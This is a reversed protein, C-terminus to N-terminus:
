EIRRRLAAPTPATSACRSRNLDRREIMALDVAEPWGIVAVVQEEDLLPLTAGLRDATRDTELMRVAEHAGMGADAAALIRACVWWLPGCARHHALM